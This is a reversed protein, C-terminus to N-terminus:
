RRYGVAVGRGPASELAASPRRRHGIRGVGFLLVALAGLAAAVAPMPLARAV